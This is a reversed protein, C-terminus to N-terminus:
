RPRHHRGGDDDGGVAADRTQGVGLQERGLPALLEILDDLLSRHGHGHPDRVVLGDVADVDQAGGPQGHQLGDAPQGFRGVEHDRIEHGQGLEAARLAVQDVAVGAAGAHRGGGDHGLDRAVSEHDLQVPLVGRVAEGAV